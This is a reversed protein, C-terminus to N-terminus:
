APSIINNKMKKYMNKLSPFFLIIMILVISILSMWEYYDMAYRVFSQKRVQQALLKFAGAKEKFQMGKHVLSGIEYNVYDRFIPNSVQTQSNFAEQHYSKAFLNFFNQLGISSTYGLYRIALCFAAASIGCHKKVSSIVFLITPVMILGVGVGHLVLPVYFYYENGDSEFSFFMIQHFTLLCLFGFSWMWKVSRKAILSYFSITVGLVIGAINFWQITSLHIPDFNLEQTFYQNSIALSFREIYMIFLVLCGLLFNKSRFIELHIYIRKLYHQRIGFILILTVMFLFAFLIRNDYFWYMEQGYVMMYGFSIILLSYLIFSAYDLSWLPYAKIKRMSKMSLMIMILGPFFSWAAYLYIEDFNFSDIFDATVFTNFPSSCLLMGFFIVYSGEKARDSKLRSFINSISLNVASAFIMGQFFRLGYVWEIDKIAYMLLCNVIQLLNFIIYYTKTPMFEFFRRELVYFGVFGAYFLVILFQVDSPQCGYFGATVNINASPLFFLVMSPMIGSFLILKILWEPVWNKFISNM